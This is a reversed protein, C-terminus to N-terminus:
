TDGSQRRPRRLRAAVLAEIEDAVRWTADPKGARRSAAAMAALRERDGLLERVLRALRAGDLEADAVLEAAGAARMWEANKRQHDATAYPYPVLVAPRGLAALEAVSGGARAVVLDAAAMAHALQSTYPVLRYREFRAGRRELEARVEDHNRPGCVHVIQVDLDGAPAAPGAFADMCARNLTQAGQSGGFVLLVPLDARLDFAALGEARTAAVQLASLPRGTVVYKPPECGAIQFSLCFRDVVPRLLRNAVGLHADAELALAPIGRLGALAVVPGSAYGGGGVAAAPRTASVIHWARPAAVALLRLTTAHARAASLRREFGRMEITHVVYDDPVLGAQSPTTAFVVRAGRAAVEAAVALAPSLHGGTGGAALLVTAGDLASSL